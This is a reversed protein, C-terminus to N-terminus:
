VSEEAWGNLATLINERCVTGDNAGQIYAGRNDESIGIGTPMDRPLGGALVQKFAYLWAVRDAHGLKPLDFAMDAGKSVLCGFLRLLDRKYEERIM